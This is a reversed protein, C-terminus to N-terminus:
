EVINRKFEKIYEHLSEETWNSNNSLIYKVKEIEPLSNLRTYKNYKDETVLEMDKVFRLHYQNNKNLFANILPSQLANVKDYLHTHHKHTYVTDIYEKTEDCIISYYATM